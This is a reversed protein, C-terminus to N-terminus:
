SSLAWFPELSEGSPTSGAFAWGPASGQLIGFSRRVDWGVTGSSYLIDGGWVACFDCGDM